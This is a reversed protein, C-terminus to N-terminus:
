YKEILDFYVCVIPTQDNVEVGVRNWYALHSNRFDEANLDGEAEALAFRDPVDIFACQQVETVRVKGMVVEDNGLLILEEGIHEVPEGEDVYEKATTATARKNGHIVLDTLIERSRGPTGFEITRLGNVVKFAM